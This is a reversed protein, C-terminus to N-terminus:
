TTSSLKFDIGRYSLLLRKLHRYIIDGKLSSRWFSSVNCFINQSPPSHFSLIDFLHSFIFTLVPSHIDSCTTFAKSAALWTVSFSHVQQDYFSFPLICASWLLFFPTYMSVMFSFLSYVHQGYLSFPLTCASSIYSSVSLHSRLFISNSLHSFSHRSVACTFTRATRTPLHPTRPASHVCSEGIDEGRSLLRELWSGVRRQSVAREREREAKVM